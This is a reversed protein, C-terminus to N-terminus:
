EATHLPRQCVVTDSVCCLQDHDAQCMDVAQNLGTTSFCSGGVATRLDYQGDLDTHRYVTYGIDTFKGTTNSAVDPTVIADNAM